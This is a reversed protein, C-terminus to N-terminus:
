KVYGLSRLQKLLEKGPPPPTFGPRASGAYKHKEQEVQGALLRMKKVIEPKQGALNIQERPDKVPDFLWDVTDEDAMNSYVYGDSYFRLQYEAGVHHSVILPDYTGGGRLLSLLSIGQIEPPTGVGVAECISPLLDVLRVRQDIQRGAYEGGPFKVLLPVHLHEIFLSGHGQSSHEYFEEGHDSTLVILSKDYCGKEKLLEAIEKFIHDAVLIGGDYLALLHERHRPDSMDVLKWFEVNKKRQLDTLDEPRTPLGPVPNELFACRLERPGHIYPVHCFYHHLFLFLPKGAARSRDLWEGVEPPLKGPESTQLKFVDQYCDFGRDFGLGANVNGGGHLGVTMYGNNRLIEALSPSEPALKLKEAGTFNTVGHVDPMFATFISMHSPATHASQSIANRFLVAEGRFSDIFPSTPKGYGYCSLHDARLTDVSFLIIDPKPPPSDESAAVIRLPYSLILALFFLFIRRTPKSPM